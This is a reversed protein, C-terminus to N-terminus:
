DGEGYLYDDVHRVDTTDRGKLSGIFPFRAFVGGSVPVSPGKAKAARRGDRATEKAPVVRAVAKGNRTIVTSGNHEARRVIQSLHRAAETVTITKESM